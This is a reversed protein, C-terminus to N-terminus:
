KLVCYLRCAIVVVVFVTIIVVVVAIVVVVCFWTGAGFCYLVIVNCQMQM